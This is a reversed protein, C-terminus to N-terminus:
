GPQEGQRSRNRRVSTCWPAPTRRPHRRPHRRIGSRGAPARNSFQGLRAYTELQESWTDPSMSGWGFEATRENFVYPMQLRAALIEDDPRLTPYEATLLEVAREPNGHVFAWGRGSARLFSTLVYADEDLMRHTAYTAYYPADRVVPNRRGLAAHLAPTWRTTAAICRKDGM